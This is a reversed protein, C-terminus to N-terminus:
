FLYMYIRLLKISYTQSLNQDNSSWTFKSYILIFLFDISWCRCWVLHWSFSWFFLHRSKILAVVLIFKRSEYETWIYLNLMYSMDSSSRGRLQWSKVSFFNLRAFYEWIIKIWYSYHLLFYITLFLFLFCGGSGSVVAVFVLLYM